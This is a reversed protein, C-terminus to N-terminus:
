FCQINNPYVLAIARDSSVASVGWGCRLEGFIWLM